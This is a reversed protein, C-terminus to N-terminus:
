IKVMKKVREKMEGAAKNQFTVALVPGASIGEHILFAMILTKV